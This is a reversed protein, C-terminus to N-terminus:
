VRHVIDKLSRRPKREPNEAPYGIPMLVIPFLDDAAGLVKLLKVSDFSAVWVTGLGQASVALQAYSAAITADLVPLIDSLTIKSDKNKEIRACFALVVPAKSVFEQM